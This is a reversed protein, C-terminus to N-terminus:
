EMLSAENFAQVYTAEEDRLNSNFPDLDLDCQVTDLEHRLRKVTEHLNSHDYLLKHFPKKLYNLKQMIKYMHFVSVSMNWGDLVVEKFRSHYVLINTFKFPRPEVKVTTPILLVALAHDSIRYPKVFSSSKVQSIIYAMTNSGM